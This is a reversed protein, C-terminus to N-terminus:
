TFLYMESKEENNKGQKTQEITHTTIWTMVMWEDVVGFKCLM